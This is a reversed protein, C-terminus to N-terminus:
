RKPSLSEADWRHADRRELLEGASILTAGDEGQVGYARGIADVDSQDPTPTSAGPAEEGSFENSLPDIEPDGIRLPADDGPIEEEPAPPYLGSQMAEAAIATLSSDHPPEAAPSDPDATERALLLEEPSVGHPADPQSEALAEPNKTPIQPRARSM